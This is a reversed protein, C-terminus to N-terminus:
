KGKPPAACCAQGGKTAALETQWLSMVPQTVVRDGAYLGDKIEVWEDNSEGVKVATRLLHKGSQVYVFEGETTKLLASRPVAMARQNNGRHFTTKISSGVGLSNSPDPIELLAEVIQAASKLSDDMRMLHASGGDGNTNPMQITIRQSEKVVNTMGVAIPASAYAHGTKFTGDASSTEDASRYVQATAVVVSEMDREGVEAMRIDLSNMTEKSFLVGKGKQFNGINDEHGESQSQDESPNVAKHSGCGSVSLLLVAFLRSIWITKM